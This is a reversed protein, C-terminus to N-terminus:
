TNKEQEIKNCISGLLENYIKFPIVEQLIELKARYVLQIICLNQCFIKNKLCSM